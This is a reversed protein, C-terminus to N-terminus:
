RVKFMQGNIKVYVTQAIKLSAIRAAKEPTNSVVHTNSIFNREASYCEALYVKM